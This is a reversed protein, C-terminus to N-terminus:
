NMQALPASMAEVIPELKDHLKAIEEDTRRGLRYEWVTGNALHRTGIYDGITMPTRLDFGEKNPCTYQECLYGVKEFPELEAFPISFEKGCATCSVEVPQKTLEALDPNLGQHVLFDRFGAETDVAFVPPAGDGIIGMVRLLDDGGPDDQDQNGCYPCGSQSENVGDLEIEADCNSCIM